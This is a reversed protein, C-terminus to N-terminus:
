ARIPPDSVEALGASLAFATAGARSAVGLKRFINSLHHAVTRESLVLEAAIMRSTMGRAVLRLVEAERETLGGALRGRPRRGPGAGRSSPAPRGHNVRLETVAALACEFAEDFSLARGEAWAAAFRSEGLGARVAAVNRAYDQRDAPPPVLGITEMLMETAGFLRAAEEPKGHAGLIGALLELCEAVQGKDGLSHFVALSDSLHALATDADGRHDAVVGLRLLSRAIGDQDRLERFLALAEDALVAAQADDERQLALTALNSLSRAVGYRDHLERRLALAEEMRRRATAFDRQIVAVGGLNHLSQAVGRKDGLERRAALAQEHLQGAREHDGQAVALNGAGNLAKARSAATGSASALELVEALWRSGESLYGRVLWFRWAAGALRLGMEPERVDLCWQLAARINDHEQELRELWIAEEPGALKSEATEVLDQFFVAHRRRVAEASASAALREQGYQRLMELLRYRAGGDGNLEALVLSKDVLHGLLELVETADVSDGSCVAEAAELSWGGAFVSLRDFLQREPEGLLEYSWDVTARLTQQRAPASRSGGVLLRFRDALRDAIQDMTLLRVRAAALEIALPLGDLRRCVQLVDAANRDTLRFSALAATAREAFLRVAEYRALQEVSPQLRPDPLALPPVPWAMEGAVNLPERSTALLRVGPCRRLLAAVLEACAVILHECNDLVLLLRRRELATALTQAVLDRPQERVGLVAAVAQPLLAPDVLPALDVLWVGDAHDDVQDAAVELALRTKGVGGTGVLTLLRTTALLRGVEAREDARGVFSTSQLPLNHRRPVSTPAHHASGASRARGSSTGIAPSTAALTGSQSVQSASGRRGLAAAVSELRGLTLETSRGLYAKHLRGERRYGYWYWGNKHRERRATFSLPGREFRFASAGAAELWRWWENSGIPIASPAGDLILMGDRATPTKHAM